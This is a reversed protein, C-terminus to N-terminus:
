RFAPMVENAFVKLTALFDDQAMDSCMMTFLCVGNRNKDRLSDIGGAPEGCVGCKELDALRGLTKKATPYKSEFDQKDKGLVVLTQESIEIEEPNRGVTKCHDM